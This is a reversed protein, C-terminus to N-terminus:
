GIIKEVKDLLEELEFPKSIYDECSLASASIKAMEDGRGTLMIVPISATVESNRIKVLVAFGDMEPMNIDLLILDPKLHNAVGIGEKGSKAAIATFGKKELFTSVVLCIGPEDDIILIRKAM